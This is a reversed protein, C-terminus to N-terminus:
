RGPRDRDPWAHPRAGLRTGGIRASRRDRLDSRRAQHVPRLVPVGGSNQLPEYQKSVVGFPVDQESANRTKRTLMFRSGVQGPQARGIPTKDVTWDLGAQKIMEDASAGPPVPSGLGHWPKEGIYAMSNINHAV